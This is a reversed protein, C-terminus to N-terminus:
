PPAEFQRVIITDSLPSGSAKREMPYEFRAPPGLKATFARVYEQYAPSPEGQGLLPECSFVLFTRGRAPPLEDPPPAWRAPTPALLTVYYRFSASELAMPDTAAAIRNAIVWQDGPRTRM